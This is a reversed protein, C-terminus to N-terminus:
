SRRCCQHGRAGAGLPQHAAGIREGSVHQHDLLHHLARILEVDNVKMNRRKMERKRTPHRRWVDGGQM